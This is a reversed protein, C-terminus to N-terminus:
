DDIEVEYNYLAIYLKEPIQGKYYDAVQKINREKYYKYIEFGKEQTDYLGLYESKSKGTEPNILSCYVTYKGCKHPSTGIASEGRDNQRKTFLSNITHPVFICTEPSYIKNHKIIIDKDLEMREGDVEYYNEEYWEAFNQFNYWEECVTCNKYTPHKIHYKEDYCREMMSYWNNYVRTTHNNIRSVYKGVGIYGRDYLHSYFPNKVEKQLINDIKVIKKYNHIDLFEILRAGNKLKEIIKFKCGQNNEHITFVGYKEIIFM